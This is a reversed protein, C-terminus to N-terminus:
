ARTSRSTRAPRRSTSSGEPDIDAFREASWARRPLRRRADGGTRRRELGPLGHDAGPPPPGATEAIRLEHRGDRLKSASRPGGSPRRPCRFSARDRRRAAGAAALPPVSRSRSRGSRRRSCSTSWSSGGRCIIATSCKGSFWRGSSCVRAACGALAASGRCGRSPARLLFVGFVLFGLGFVAAVRVHVYVTDVIRSGLRRIDEAGPHPGSASM